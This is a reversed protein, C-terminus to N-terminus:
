LMGEVVHIVITKAEIDAYKEALPMRDDFTAGEYIVELFVNGEANKFFKKDGNVVKIPNGAFAVTAFLTVFAMLFLRKM